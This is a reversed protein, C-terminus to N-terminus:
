EHCLNGTKEQRTVQSLCYFIRCILSVADMDTAFTIMLPKEKDDFGYGETDNNWTHDSGITHGNVPKRPAPSSM